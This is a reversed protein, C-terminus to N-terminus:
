NNFKNSLHNLQDAGQKLLFETMEYNNNFVAFKLAAEDAYHINADHQIAYNFLDMNNHKSACILLPDQHIEYNPFEKNTYNIYNILEDNSIPKIDFDDCYDFYDYLSLMYKDLLYKLEESTLSKLNYKLQLKIYKRFDIKKNLLQQIIENNDFGSLKDSLKENIFENYKKIM